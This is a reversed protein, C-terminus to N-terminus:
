NPIELLPHLKTSKIVLKKILSNLYILHLVFCFMNFRIPKSGEVSSRLFKIQVVSVPVAEFTKFYCVYRM